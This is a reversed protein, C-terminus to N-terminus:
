QERGRRISVIKRQARVVVCTQGDHLRPITGGADSERVSPQHTGREIAAAVARCAPADRRVAVDHAGRFATNEVHRRLADHPAATQSWAIADHDIENRAFAYLGVGESGPTARLRTPVDRM